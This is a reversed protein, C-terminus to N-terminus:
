VIRKASIYITETFAVVLTTTIVTTRMCSYLHTYKNDYEDFPVQSCTQCSCLSILCGLFESASDIPASAYHLLAM